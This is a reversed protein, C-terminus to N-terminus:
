CVGFCGGQSFLRIGVDICGDRIREYLVTPQRTTDFPKRFRM